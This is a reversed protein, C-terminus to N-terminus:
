FHIDRDRGPMFCTLSLRATFNRLADGPTYPLDLESTFIYSGGASVRLSRIISVELELGPEIIVYGQGDTRIRRKDTNSSNASSAPYGYSVTGLGVMVPLHFHVASRPLIIPAFQLGAYGYRMELGDLDASTQGRLYDRYSPNKISSGSFACSVGVNFWENLNVGVSFGGLTAYTGLVNSFRATAAFYGGTLAVDQDFLERREVREQAAAHLACFFITLWLILARM